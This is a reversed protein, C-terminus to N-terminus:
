RGVSDGENIMFKGEIFKKGKLKICIGIEM